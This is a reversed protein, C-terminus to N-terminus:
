EDDDIEANKKNDRKIAHILEARFKLEDPYGPKLARAKKTKKDKGADMWAYPDYDKPMGLCQSNPHKAKPDLTFCKRPKGEDTGNSTHCGALGCDTENCVCLKEDYGEVPSGGRALHAKVAKKALVSRNCMFFRGHNKSGKPRGRKAM